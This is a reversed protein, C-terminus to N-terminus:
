NSVAMYRDLGEGEARYLAILSNDAAVFGEKKVLAQQPAMGLGSKETQRSKDGGVCIPM